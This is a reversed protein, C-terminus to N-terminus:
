SSTTAATTPSRNLIYRKSLGCASCPVRRGADRRRPSVSFGYETPLDVVAADLGARDAFRRPSCSATRRTTASGSTSTSGTSGTARPPSSTGCPSATRAEPCGWCGSRPDSCATDHIAREVQRHVHDVFHPKCFNANHRRMQIVARDRCVRCKVHEAEPSSRASNSSTTPPRALHRAHATRRRPHGARVRGGRGTAEATRGGAVRGRGRSERRPQRLLVKM